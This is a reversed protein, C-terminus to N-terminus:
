ATMPQCGGVSLGEVDGVTLAESRSRGGMTSRIEERVKQGLESSLQLVQKLRRFECSTLAREVMREGLGWRVGKRTRWRARRKVVLQLLWVDM